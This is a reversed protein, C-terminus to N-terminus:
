NWFGSLGDNQVVLQHGLTKVAMAIIDQTVTVDGNPNARMPIQGNNDITPMGGPVLELVLGKDPFAGSWINALRQWTQELRARTYGDQQWEAIQNSNPCKSWPGAHPLIMEPTNANIGLLKMSVIAPNTNYRAGAAAVFTQWKAMFIPDWPVPIAAERCSMM